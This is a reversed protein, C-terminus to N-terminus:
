DVIRQLVFAFPVSLSLGAVSMEPVSDLSRIAAPELGRGVVVDEDPGVTSEGVRVAGRGMPPLVVDECKDVL